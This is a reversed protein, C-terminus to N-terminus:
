EEVPFWVSFCSGKGIESDIEILGSHDTVIGYTVSLGLGTGGDNSKTTFFPEFIRDLIDSEIGTGTDTITMVLWKKQERIKIETKVCVSGGSPMAYLANHLLNLVVQKIQNRDILIWPLGNGLQM